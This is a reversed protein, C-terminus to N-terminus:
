PMAAPEPTPEAGHVPREGLRGSRARRVAGRFERGAPRTRSRYRLRAIRLRRTRPAPRGLTRLAALRVGVARKKAVQHPNFDDLQRAGLPECVTIVGASVAADFLETGASTRVM